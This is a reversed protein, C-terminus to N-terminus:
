ILGQGKRWPPRCFAILEGKSYEAFPTFRESMGDNVRFLILYVPKHETKSLEKASEMIESFEADNPPLRGSREYGKKRTSPNYTAIVTNEKNRSRWELYNPDGDFVRM